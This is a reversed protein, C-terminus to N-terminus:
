TAPNFAPLLGRQLAQAVAARRNHVQLKACANKLHFNVTHESLGLIAAIEWSTKGLAAWYLCECERGSLIKQSM